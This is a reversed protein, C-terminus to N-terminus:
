VKLDAMSPDNAEASRRMKRIEARMSRAKFLNTGSVFTDAGVRACEGATQVNIGGDVEIHFNLKREM